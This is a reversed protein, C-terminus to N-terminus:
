GGGDTALVFLKHWSRRVCRRGAMVDVPLALATAALLAPLAVARPLETFRAQLSVRLPAPDVGSISLCRLGARAFADRYSTEDRSVFAATDFRASTDSPAVELVLLRGDDALHAALREIAAHFRDADVIHQLVTVCLVREFRRGLDLEAVDGVRFRCRDRLGEAAVRRNAEEIMSPALDVGTVTAGRRALRRSWRGIGCGADLVTMARSARLWPRLALWQVLDIYRNHFSPLGYSCVAALGARQAAFRRAREEWYQTHTAAAVATTV